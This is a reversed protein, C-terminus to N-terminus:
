KNLLEHEHITTQIHMNSLKNKVEETEIHIPKYIVNHDLDAMLSAKLTSIQIECPVNDVMVTYTIVRYPRKMKKDSSYFNEIEYINEKWFKAEIKKMIIDMQKIDTVTIRWWVADPVDALLYSKRWDRWANGEKMRNIKELLWVRSKARSSVSPFWDKTWIDDVINTLIFNLKPNIDISLHTAYKEIIRRTEFPLNLQEMKVKKTDIWDPFKINEWISYLDKNSEFMIKTLEEIKNLSITKLFPNNSNKVLDEVIILMEEKSINKNKWLKLIEKFEKIVTERTLPNEFYKVIDMRHEKDLIFKEFLNWIEKDLKFEEKIHNILKAEDAFIDINKWCIWEKLLINREEKSFWAQKLTNIKEKIEKSSFVKNPNLEDLWINHAKEIANKEAKNLTRKLYFNSAEIRERKTIQKTTDLLKEELISGILNKTDGVVNKVDNSKLLENKTVHKINNKLKKVWFKAIKFGAFAWTWTLWLEVVSRWREYANWSFLLTISEGLAEAIQKLWEFSALQKLADILVKWNTNYIEIALDYNWIILTDIVWKEFNKVSSNKSQSEDIWIKKYIDTKAQHILQEKNLHDKTEWIVKHKEKEYKIFADEKESQHKKELHKSNSYDPPSNNLHTAKKEQADPNFHIFTESNAM